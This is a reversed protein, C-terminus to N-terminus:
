KVPKPYFQRILDVIGEYEYFERYEASNRIGRLCFLCFQLYAHIVVVWEVRVACNSFGRLNYILDSIAECNNLTGMLGDVPPWIKCIVKTDDQYENLLKCWVM